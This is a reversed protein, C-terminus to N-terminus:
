DEGAPDTWPRAGDPVYSKRLQALTGTRIAKRIERMMRSLFAVNHITLLQGGLIEGARCLHHIYGRSATSCCYCDCGEEVPRRDRLFRHNKLNISTRGEGTDPHVFAGGHRALRTPHVCDFSDIGCFVGHFIDEPLGIGLLHTPRAPDKMESTLAIIEHMQDKTGGLTGGIAQGFFDQSGIFDCSNQRLDRHIGGQIIGYLAQSDRGTALFRRLSRLEWRHSRATSRECYTRDAHFPTCEDLALIIDAGLKQQVDISSEPTLHYLKGDRYSRFTAGEEDIRLLSKKGPCGRRSKIEQAVGGHGLSFIQFGGSDTLMPRDWGMMRHLGGLDAVEEATPQLALHYTNALIMEAGAEVMQRATLGKIAGRTACFIFTPTEVTGHPTQLFGTRSRGEGRHCITFKFNPYSM